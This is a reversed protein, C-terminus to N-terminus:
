SFDVFIILFRQVGPSPARFGLFALWDGCHSTAIGKGDYRGAWVSANIIRPCGSARGARGSASASVRCHPSAAFHDDPSSPFPLVKKSVPPCYLGLGPYNSPWWCCWRARQPSVCVRSHPGAAFHDDPASTSAAGEKVRAPSVIRCCPCNSLWWCRRRVLRGIRECPLRSQCRFSRRPRIRRCRKFVPLFLFKVSPQVGVLAVPAGM